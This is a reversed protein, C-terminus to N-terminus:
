PAAAAPAGLCFVQGDQTGFVVRGSALAPSASIGGGANFEALKAGTPLDLVYLRGDNSGLYVRSGAVAPSSDVRAQTTFTWLAAGTRADLGHILKDRGGLVVKGDAVAASSYFPFKRQPHQYRWAVKREALEVALVENEFTGYYARGAVIAPSAGTYAGSSVVLVERGDDIRVGRLREDCGTVYAVGGEVSATAHVPGDTRHKWALTGRRADLAYLHGDYSGILVKGGVVVPSSKVEAETKFTWVGKGDRVDVAHVVGAQDGIYALGDAVAPSSEGIPGAKYTWRPKGTAFDLALLEGAETGLYVGGEAIAASSEVASGADHTWLVKLSEPLKTASVGTLAPNGRFQPWAGEPAPGPAGDSPLAGPARLLVLGALGALVTSGPRRRSARM